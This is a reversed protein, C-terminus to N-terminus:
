ISSQIAREDTEGTKFTLQGDYGQFSNNHMWEWRQPGFRVAWIRLAGQINRNVRLRALFRHANFIGLTKLYRTASRLSRDARRRAEDGIDFGDDGFKNALHSMLTSWRFTVFRLHAPITIMAFRGLDAAKEM